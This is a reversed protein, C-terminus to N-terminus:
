EPNKLGDSRAAYPPLLAVLPEANVSQTHAAVDDIAEFQMGRAALGAEIKSLKSLYGYDVAKRALAELRPLREEPRAAWAEVWALDLALSQDSFHEQSARIRDLEARAQRVDGQSLLAEAALLRSRAAARTQDMRDFREALEGAEVRVRWPDGGALLDLQLLELDSTAIWGEHGSDLRLKRAQEFAERAQALEGHWVALRGASALVAARRMPSAQELSEELEILLAEATAFDGALLRHDVRFAGVYLMLDMQGAERYVTQSETLRREADSLRGERSAVLALNFATRARPGSLDLERFIALARQNLERSRQNLGRSSAAAALNGLCIAEGRRDGVLEFIELAQAWLKGAEELRGYRAMLRGANVQLRAVPYARGRQRALTLAREFAQLATAFEGIEIGLTGRANLYDIALDRTPHEPLTAGIDALQRWAKQPEGSMGIVLSNEIGVRRTLPQSLNMQHLGDRVKRAEDFLGQERLTILQRLMLEGRQNEDLMLDSDALAETLVAEAAALDGKRKDTTALALVAAVTEAASGRAQAEARAARALSASQELDGDIRELRAQLLLWRPERRQEADTALLALHRRASQPQLADLEAEALALLVDSDNPELLSLARLHAAVAAMDHRSRAVEAQRQLSAVMAAHSEGAEFAPNSNSTLTQGVLLLVLVALASLGAASALRRGPRNGHEAADSSAPVPAPQAEARTADEREVECVLRYGRGHCTEIYRPARATDGLAQRLESITQPLANPSLATRGWVRDLLVDREVLSPARELLELLLRWAQRRLVILGDPGHLKGTERDLTCQGFRYRM